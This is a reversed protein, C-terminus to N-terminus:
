SIIFEIGKIYPRPSSNPSLSSQGDFSSRRAGSRSIIPSSEPSLTPSLPTSTQFHLRKLKDILGGVQSM